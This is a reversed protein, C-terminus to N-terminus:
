EGRDVRMTYPTHTCPPCWVEYWVSTVCAAILELRDLLGPLPVTLLQCLALGSLKRAHPTAISDFRGCGAGQATHCSFWTDFCRRGRPQPQHKSKRWREACSAKLAAATKFVGSRERRRHM